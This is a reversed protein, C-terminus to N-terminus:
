LPHLMKLSARDGLLMHKLTMWTKEHSTPENSKVVAYYETTSIDWLKNM